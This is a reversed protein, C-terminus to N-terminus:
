EARIRNTILWTVSAEKEFRPGMWELVGYNEREAMGKDHHWAEKKGTVVTKMTWVSGGVRRSALLVCIWDARMKEDLAVLAIVWTSYAMTRGPPSRRGVLLESTTCNGRTAAGNAKKNVSHKGRSSKKNNNNNNNNRVSHNRIRYPAWWIAKERQINNVNWPSSRESRRDARHRADPVRSGANRRRQHARHRSSDKVLEIEAQTLSDFTLHPSAGMAYWSASRKYWGRHGGDLLSSRGLKSHM